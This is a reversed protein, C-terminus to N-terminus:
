GPRSRELVVVASGAYIARTIEGYGFKAALKLSAANAELAFAVTAEAKLERDSWALAAAIAESAYGKGWMSPSLAWGAEPLHERSADIGRIFQQFSIQGVFSGTAKERIIWGGYGLLDWHGATYLLNMWARRRDLPQPAIFRTVEPDAWMACFPETDELKPRSLILRETEIM